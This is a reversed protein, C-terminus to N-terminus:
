RGIHGPGWPLGLAAVGLCRGLVVSRSSQLTQFSSRHGAPRTICATGPPSWAHCKPSCGMSDTPSSLPLSPGPSLIPFFPTSSCTFPPVASIVSFLHHDQPSSHSSSPRPDLHLFLVSNSLGLGPPPSSMVSLLPQGGGHDCSPESV